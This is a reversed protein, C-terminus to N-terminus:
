HANMNSFGQLVVVGAIILAVGLMAPADPREGFVFMAVLLTLVMGLGAWVAYAVGVPMTKFVLSLLYFALGYGVVTMLTPVPRSFTESAKLANTAVVEACIALILYLWPM